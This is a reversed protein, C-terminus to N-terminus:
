LTPKQAGLNSLGNNGLDVQGSNRQHNQSNTSVNCRCDKVKEKGMTEVKEVKSSEVKTLKKGNGKRDCKWGGKQEPCEEMTWSTEKWVACMSTERGKWAEFESM